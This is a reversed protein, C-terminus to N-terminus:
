RSRGRWFGRIFEDKQKDTMQLFAMLEDESLLPVALDLWERYKPDLLLIRERV